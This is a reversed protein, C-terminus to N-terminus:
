ADAGSLIAAELATWPFGAGTAPDAGSLHHLGLVHTLNPYYAWCYRVLDAAIAIQWDTLGGPAAMFAANVTFQNADRVGEWLEPHSLAPDIAWVARDEWGTAWM